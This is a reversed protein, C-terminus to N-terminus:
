PPAFAAQHPLLPAQFHLVHELFSDPEGARLWVIAARSNSPIRVAKKKGEIPCHGFFRQVVESRAM